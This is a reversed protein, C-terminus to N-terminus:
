LLLALIGALWCYPAFYALYGARIIQLLWRLALFGVLFSITFGTLLSVLGVREWAQADLQLVLAGMIAPIALLFSFRGALDRQLGFFLACVITLGSRSLGPIIALGQAAGIGFAALASIRGQLAPRQPAWRSLSVVGGTVLLMVGVTRTSAFMAEFPEKFLLGIIATPITGLIVAVLLSEKLAKPQPPWVEALMAKLDRRFTLIVAALTGLHLSTDLLLEPETFGLLHQFIVLHGSSSVPLFETVGQVMGLLATELLTM